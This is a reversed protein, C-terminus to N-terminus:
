FGNVSPGYLEIDGAPGGFGLSLSDGHGQYAGVNPLHTCREGAECLLNDNGVGDQSIERAHVLLSSQCETGTWIAGDQLLCTPQDFSWTHTLLEANAGAPLELVGRAVTDGSAASWDWVQCDPSILDCEGKLLSDPLPAALGWGRWANEWSIRDMGYAFSAQGLADDDPNVADAVAGVFSGVLTVGTAYDVGPSFTACPTDV